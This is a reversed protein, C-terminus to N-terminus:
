HLLLAGPMTDTSELPVIVPRATPAAVTVAAPLLSLSDSNSILVTSGVTVVVGAVGCTAETLMVAGDADINTPLEMVSDAVARSPAPTAIVPLVIVHDASPEATVTLEVPATMATAAPEASTRAVTSPTVPEVDIATTAGVTADSVIEGFVPTVRAGPAVRCNEVEAV